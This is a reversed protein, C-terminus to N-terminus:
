LRFISLNNGHGWLNIGISAFIPFGLFVSKLINFPILTLPHIFSRAQNMNALREQPYVERTRIFFSGPVDTENVYM